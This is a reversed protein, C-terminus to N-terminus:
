IYRVIYSCMTINDYSLCISIYSALKSRYHMPPDTQAVSITLLFLLMSILILILRGDM